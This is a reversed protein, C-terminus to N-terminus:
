ATWLEPNDQKKVEIPVAMRRGDRMFEACLDARKNQAASCERGVLVHLRNLHERLRDLLLDSLHQLVLARLDAPSAPALNDLTHAGVASDPAQFSAERAAAAQTRLSYRVIGGLPCAQPKRWNSCHQGVL